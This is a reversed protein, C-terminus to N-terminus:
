ARGMLIGNKKLISLEELETMEYHFLIGWTRFNNTCIKPKLHDSPHSERKNLVTPYNSLCAHISPTLSPCCLLFIQVEMNSSDNWCSNLWMGGSSFTHSCSSSRTHVRYNPTQLVILYRTLMFNNLYKFSELENPTHM